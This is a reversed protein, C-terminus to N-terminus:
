LENLHRATSTTSTKILATDNDHHDPFLHVWRHGLLNDATLLVPKVRSEMQTVVHDQIKHTHFTDRRLEHKFPTEILELVSCADSTKFFTHVNM